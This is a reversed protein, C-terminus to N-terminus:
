PTASRALGRDLARAMSAASGRGLVHVYMVHPSEGVQRGHVSPFALGGAILAREVDPPERATVVQDGM